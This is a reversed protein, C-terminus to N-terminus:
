IEGDKMKVLMCVPVAKPAHTGFKCCWNDYKSGALATGQPHGAKHWYGCGKCHKPTKQKM